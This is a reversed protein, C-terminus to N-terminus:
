ARRIGVEKGGESAWFLGAPFKQRALWEDAQLQGHAQVRSAYERRARQGERIAADVVDVGFVARLDAVFEATIPMVKAATKVKVIDAAAGRKANNVAIKADALDIDGDQDLDLGKRSTRNYYILAAVVVVAAVILLEM